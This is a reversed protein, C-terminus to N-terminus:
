GRRLIAIVADRVQAQVGANVRAVVKAIVSRQATFLKGPRAYSVTRLGGASFSSATLEVAIPDADPNSTVQCAIFDGRGVAALIVAPRAKSGSLDSFPFQLVVVDGATM